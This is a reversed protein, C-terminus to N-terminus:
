RTMKEIDDKEAVRLLPSNEDKRAFVKGGATWAFKWGVEKKKQVVAGLLQKTLRTLHENIFVPQSEDFGLDNTAIRAKRAKALFDNRKQRRVFRVVINTENHKATPVKHCIDIDNDDVPEAIIQGIKKLMATPEADFPIGKVEINNSRQYQELQELRQTLKKNQSKLDRNERLMSEMEKRLSKLEKVEEKLNRLEKLENLAKKIAGLEDMLENRLEQVTQRAM